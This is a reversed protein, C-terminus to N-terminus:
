LFFECKFLKLIKGFLLKLHLCIHFLEISYLDGLKHESVAHEMPFDKIIGEDTTASSSLPPSPTSSRFSSAGSSSDVSPPRDPNTFQPASSPMFSGLGAAASAPSCSLKMLLMAASCETMTENDDDMMNESTRRKRSSSSIFLNQIHINM